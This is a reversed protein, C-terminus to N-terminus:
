RRRRKTATLVARADARREKSPHFVAVFGACLRTPGDIHLWWLISGVVAAITSTGTILNIM